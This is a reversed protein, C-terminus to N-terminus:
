FNSNKAQKCAHIKANLLFYDSKVQNEKKFIQAQSENKQMSEQEHSIM